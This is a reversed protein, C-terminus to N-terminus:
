ANDAEVAKLLHDYIEPVSYFVRNWSPVLTGNPNEKCQTWATWLFGRFYRATLEEQHRDYALNNIEADDSYIKIFRRANEYYTHRIMEVFADDLSLGHSRMYNFYFKAIDVVMRHLGKSGDDPSLDQHKHDYSSTLSIQAIRRPNARHYVESLMSVELGWDYAIDLSRGLRATFSVEGSLPYKFARQYNFFRAMEHYSHSQMLTVLTDCFPIVMLRSVRGYMTKEEPSIRPYYGKCFQFINHPNATPLILRGLFLRNYTRIDCDHLAIIDCDKRAFLYGLTLWVSQGKGPFGTNIERSQIKKLVEQVRPSEIWVVKMDRGSTRLRAFYRKAEQFQVEKTVGNLGVVVMHLYPVKMVEDVIRDLVQPNLIESYLCPLLLGIRIHRAYDQLKSELSTLYSTRDLIEYLDHITTITGEQHFDVM